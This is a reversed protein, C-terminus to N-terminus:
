KMAIEIYEKIIDEMELPGNPNFISPNWMAARAVLVGSTNTEAQFRQIGKLDSFYNSGGNSLVPIKLAASVAKITEYRCPHRPREAKLRGHIALASIGTAELRQAFKVTKDTDPYCRIKATVPINLNKVLAELISVATDPTNMLAAGMGGKTSYEKPCGM